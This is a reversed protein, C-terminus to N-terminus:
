LSELESFVLFGDSSLLQESIFRIMEVWIVYLLGNIELCLVKM